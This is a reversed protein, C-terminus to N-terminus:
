FLYFLSLIQPTVMLLVPWQHENPPSAVLPTDAYVAPNLRPTVLCATAMPLVPDFIQTNQNQNAIDDPYYTCIPPILIYTPSMRTGAAASTDVSSSMASSLQRWIDGGRAAFDIGPNGLNLNQSAILQLSSNQSLSTIM